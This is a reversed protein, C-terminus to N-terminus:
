RCRTLSYPKPTLAAQMKYTLAHKPAPHDTATKVLSARFHFLSERSLATAPPQALLAWM